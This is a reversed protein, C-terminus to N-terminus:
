LRMGTIPQMVIGYCKLYTEKRYWYNVFTDPNMNRNFMSFIAYPSPIGKLDWVRCICTHKNLDVTHQYLGELVEFGYEENWVIHCSASTYKNKDLKRQFIPAIESNWINAFQRM